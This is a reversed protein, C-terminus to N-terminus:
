GPTDPGRNPKEDRGSEAAQQEGKRAALYAEGRRWIPAVVFRLGRSAWKGGV